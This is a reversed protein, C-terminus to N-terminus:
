QHLTQPQVDRQIPKPNFTDVVVEPNNSKRQPLVQPQINM